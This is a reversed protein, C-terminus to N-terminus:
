FLCKRKDFSYHFFIYKFSRDRKLPVPLHFVPPQANGKKLQIVPDHRLEICSALATNLNKRHWAQTQMFNPYGEPLEQLLGDLCYLWSWYLNQNWENRNSSDFKATLEKFRKQYYEFDTGGDLQGYRKLADNLISNTLNSSGPTFMHEEIDKFVHYSVSLYLYFGVDTTIFAPINGTLHFYDYVYIFDIDSFSDYFGPMFRVFNPELEVIAFGNQCILDSFYEMKIYKNFTDFNVIDNIDLPLTYDTCNLRVNPECPEYYKAFTGTKSGANVVDVVLWMALSVIIGVVVIVSTKTKM